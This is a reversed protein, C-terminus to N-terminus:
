VLLVTVGDTVVDAIDNPLVTQIMYFTKCFNLVRYLNEKGLNALDNHCIATEECYVPRAPQQGKVRCM